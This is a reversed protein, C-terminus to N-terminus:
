NLKEKLIREIDISLRLADWTVIDGRRYQEIMQMLKERRAQLQQMRFSCNREKSTVPMAYDAIELATM